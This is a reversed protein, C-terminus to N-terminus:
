KSEGGLYLTDEYRADLYTYKESVSAGKTNALTKKPKIAVSMEKEKQLVLLANQKVFLEVHHIGTKFLDESIWVPMPLSDYELTIKQPIRADISKLHKALKLEKSKVHKLIEIGIQTTKTNIQKGIEPLKKGEDAILIMQSFQDSMISELVHGEKDILYFHDENNHKVKTLHTNKSEASNDLMFKIRALPKRETVEITLQRKMLNKSVRVDKLYSLNEKLFAATKSESDTVINDLNEGLVDYIQGKTYHLNGFLAFSVHEVNFFILLIKGFFLLTVFSIGFIIIRRARYKSTRVRRQNFIRHAPRDKRRKRNRLLNM